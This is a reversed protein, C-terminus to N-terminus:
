ITVRVGINDQKVQTGSTRVVLSLTYDTNAVGGSIFLMLKTNSPDPYSTDVTIPRAESYPFTEVQFDTLTEAEALWCSYDVYLRRREIETKRYVKLPSTM